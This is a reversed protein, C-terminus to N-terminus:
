INKVEWDVRKWNPRMMPGRLFWKLYGVANALPRHGKTKRNFIAMGENPRWVLCISRHWEPLNMGKKNDAKIRKLAETYIM